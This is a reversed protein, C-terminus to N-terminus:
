TSRPTDVELPAAERKLCFMYGRGWVTRLTWQNGDINELKKRVRSIRGDIIRDQGDYDRETVANFLLDRHMITNPYQAFLWLLEFEQRTLNLATHHTHAVRTTANITFDDLTILRHLQAHNKKRLQVRIRALLVEPEVPKILYDVAGRELGEIHSNDDGLATLFLCPTASDRQLREFLTFGHTDPLMVDCIMLDFTHQQCLREAHAGDRAWAVQFHHQSLYRSVLEGLKVDDEILLLSQASESSAGAM